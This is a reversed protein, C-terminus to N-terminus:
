AVPAYAQYLVELDDISLNSKRTDVFNLLDLTKAEGYSLALISEAIEIGDDRNTAQYLQELMEVLYNVTPHKLINRKKIEKIGSTIAGKTKNELVDKTSKSYAKHITNAKDFAINLCVGVVEELMMMSEKMAMEKVESKLDDDLLSLNAMAPFAKLSTKLYFSAKYKEKTPYKELTAEIIKEKDIPNVKSLAVDLRREFSEKLEWWQNLVTDRAKFYRERAKEVEEKFDKYVDIPMFSHDYGLSMRRLKMRIGTEIAQLEDEISLPIFSMKGNKVYNKFFEKVDKDQMNIGLVKPKIEFNGRSRGVHVKVLVGKQQLYKDVNELTVNEGKLGELLNKTGAEDMTVGINTRIQQEM